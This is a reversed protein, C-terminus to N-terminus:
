VAVEAKIRDYEKELQQLAAGLELLMEERREMAELHDASM